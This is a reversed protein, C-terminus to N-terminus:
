GNVIRIAEAAIQGIRETNGTLHLYGLLAEFGTALKYDRPDAHQPKSMSRHNRARKLVREEEETLSGSALMMRAAKAQGEASVYKVAARHAKSVDTKYTDIIYERIREEYVADGMYALINPNLAAIRKMEREEM